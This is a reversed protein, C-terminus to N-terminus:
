QWSGIDDAQGGDNSENEGCSWLQYGTPAFFTSTKESRGGTATGRTGGEHTITFTDEYDNNQIYILPNDFGDLYERLQNDGFVWDLREKAEDSDLTDNDLNSLAEEEWEFFPGGKKQTSLCLIVSEIGSDVRNGSTEFYDELSSPPYSGFQGEFSEIALGLQEIRSQSTTKRGSIRASRLLPTSVAALAGIIAIVVLLEVLTFGARPRLASQM